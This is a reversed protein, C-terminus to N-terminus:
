CTLSSAFRGRHSRTLITDTHLGLDAGGADASDGHRNGGHFGASALGTLGRRGPLFGAAHKGADTALPSAPTSPLDLAQVPGGGIGDRGDCRVVAAVARERPQAVRGKHRERGIAEQAHGFGDGDLYRAECGLRVPGPAKGDM